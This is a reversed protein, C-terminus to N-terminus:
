SLRVNTRVTWHPEPRITLPSQKVLFPCSIFFVLEGKKFIYTGNRYGDEDRYKIRNEIEVDGIKTQFVQMAARFVLPSPNVGVHKLGAIVAELFCKTAEGFVAQNNLGRFNYTKANKVVDELMDQDLQPLDELYLDDRFDRSPEEDLDNSGLIRAGISM